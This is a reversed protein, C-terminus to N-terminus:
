GSEEAFATLVLDPLLPHNPRDLRGPIAEGSATNSVGLDRRLLSIELLNLVPVGGVLTMGGYNNAHLHVPAHHRTLTRVARLASAYFWPDGLGSLGHLARNRVEDFLIAILASGDAM